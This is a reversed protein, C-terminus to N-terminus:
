PQVIQQVHGISDFPLNIKKKLNMTQKLQDQPFNLGLMRSNIPYSKKEKHKNKGVHAGPLMAYTTLVAYPLVSEIHAQQDFSFAKTHM